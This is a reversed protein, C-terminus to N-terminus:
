ITSRPPAPAPHCIGSANFFASVIILVIMAVSQRMELLKVRCKASPRNILCVLPPIPRRRNVMRKPANNRVLWASSHVLRWLSPKQNLVVPIMPDLKKTRVPNWPQWTKIPTRNSIEDRTFASPPFNVGCRWPNKSHVPKYQCKTSITQTKRNEIKYIRQTPLGKRGPSLYILSSDMSRNKDSRAPSSIILIGDSSAQSPHLSGDLTAPSEPAAPILALKEHLTIKMIPMTAKKSVPITRM